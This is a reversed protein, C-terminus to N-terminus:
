TPLRFQQATILVDVPGGHRKLDALVLLADNNEETLPATLTLTITPPDGKVGFGGIGTNLQLKTATTKM